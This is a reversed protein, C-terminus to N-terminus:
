QPCPGWNALLIGLDAGDVRGDTNIDARPFATSVTGWFALLIGLDAGDISGNVNLDYLQCFACAVGQECCDPVGNSNADVLTEDLIQGYDVIGDHNCDMDYEVLMGTLGTLEPLCQATGSIDGWWHTDDCYAGLKVHLFREPEACADGSPQNGCWATFSWTEGTVWHWAGGVGGADDQYGGLWPGAISGWAPSAVFWPGSTGVVSQVINAEGTSTITVLHGGQLAALDRAQQWSTGTSIVSVQYWHGNGGDEVRWQVADGAGAQSAVVMSVVGVASMKSIM